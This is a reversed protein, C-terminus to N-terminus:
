QKPLRRPSLCPRPPPGADDPAQPPVVSLCPQPPAEADEPPVAVPSLCPQPPPEPVTADASAGGDVPLPEVWQSLCPQPPSLCVTPNSDCAIGVSAIAATVFRARRALIAKKADDAASM